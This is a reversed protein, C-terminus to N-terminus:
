IILYAILVLFFSTIFIFRHGARYGLAFLPIAWVILLSSWGSGQQSLLFERRVSPNFFDLPSTIGSFMIAVFFLAIANIFNLYASAQYVYNEDRIEKKIPKQAVFGTLISIIFIFYALYCGEDFTSRYNEYTSFLQLDLSLLYAKFPYAAFVGVITFIVLEKRFGFKRQVIVFSFITLVVCFILLILHM